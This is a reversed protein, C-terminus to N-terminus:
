LGLEKRIILVEDDSLEAGDNKGFDSYADIIEVDCGIASLQKGFKRAKKQANEESDFMIFVKNFRSAIISIQTQTLEIGFSCLFDDGLRMVDFAGETLVVVKKSCNDINFLCDKPNIVSKEVSLNKYRPINNEIIKEKSLISRGTWSVLKGNFYLPILIRYKWEGSIGGGKVGYKEWLIRPSFNRSLLYKREMPTFRSGPLEIRSAKAIKKIDKYNLINGEYNKLLERLEGYNVGLLISLTQKLNHSGCNWCTCYDGVPNFGLHMPHESTCYPCDVNVGM